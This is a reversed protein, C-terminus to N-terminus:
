YNEDVYPFEAEYHDQLLNIAFETIDKAIEMIGHERAQELEESDMEEIDEETYEYAYLNVNSASYEILNKVYEETLHDIADWYAMNGKKDIKAYDSVKNRFEM